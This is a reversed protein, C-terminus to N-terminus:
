CNGVILVFSFLLIYLNIFNKQKDYHIYAPKAIIM